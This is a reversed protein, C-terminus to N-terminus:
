FFSSPPSPVDWSISVREEFGVIFVDTREGKDKPKALEEVTDKV